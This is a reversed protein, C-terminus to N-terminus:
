FDSIIIRDTDEITIVSTKEKLYELASENDEFTKNSVITCADIASSYETYECCTAVMDFCVGNTQRADSDSAEDELQTLYDYLAELGEYSFNDKYTHSSRFADIFSHKTVQTYM